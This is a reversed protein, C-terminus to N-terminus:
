KQRLDESVAKVLDSKRHNKTPLKRSLLNNNGTMIVTKLLM